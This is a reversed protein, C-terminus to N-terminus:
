FAYEAYDGECAILMADFWCNIQRIAEGKYTNWAVEANFVLLTEGITFHRQAYKSWFTM